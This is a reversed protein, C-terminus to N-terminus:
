NGCEELWRNEPSSSGVLLGTCSSAGTRSSSTGTRSSAKPISVEHAFVGLAEPRPFREGLHRLVRICLSLSWVVEKDSFAHHDDRGLQEPKDDFQIHVRNRLERLRHLDDYITGGLGDLLKHTKMTQVINNFREIQTARIKKLDDAPINPVGEKTYNQARYIIQDLAAEVISGAQVVMLKNFTNNENTASLRCLARGNAVINDGVKFDGIFNCRITEIDKVM